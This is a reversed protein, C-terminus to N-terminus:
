KDGKITVDFWIIFAVLQVLVFGALVLWVWSLQPPLVAKSNAGGLCTIFTIFMSTEAAFKM